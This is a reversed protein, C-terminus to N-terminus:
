LCSPVFSGFLPKRSSTKTVQESTQVTLRKRGLERGSRQATCSLLWSDSFIVCVFGIIALECCSYCWNVRPRVPPSPPPHRGVFPNKFNQFLRNIRLSLLQKNVGQSFKSINISHGDIKVNGHGGDFETYSQRFDVEKLYNQLKNELKRCWIASIWSKICENANQKIKHWPSRSQTSGMILFLHFRFRHILHRWKVIYSTMVLLILILKYLM